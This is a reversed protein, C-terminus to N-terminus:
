YCKELVDKYPLVTTLYICNLDDKNPKESDPNLKCLKM